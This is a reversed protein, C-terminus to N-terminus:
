ELPRFGKCDAAEEAEKLVYTREHHFAPAWLVDFPERNVCVREGNAVKAILREDVKARVLDEFSSGSPYAYVGRTVLLVIALAGVGIATLLGLGPGSPESARADAKPRVALWLNLLVLVMMWAMYYRLEHSQPM